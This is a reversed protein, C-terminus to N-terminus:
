VNRGVTYRSGPGRRESAPTVRDVALRADELHSQRDFSAGCGGAGLDFDPALAVSRDARSIIVADPASSNGNRAGSSSGL